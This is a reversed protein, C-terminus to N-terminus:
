LARAPTASRYSRATMPLSRFRRERTGSCSGENRLLVTGEHVTRHFFAAQDAVLQQEGELTYDYDSEYYIEGETVPAPAVSEEKSPASQGGGNDCGALGAMVAAAATGLVFSRRTVGKWTRRM